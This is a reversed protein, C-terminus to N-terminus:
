NSGAAPVAKWFYKAFGSQEDEAKIRFMMRMPAGVAVADPHTDTFEALMRGGGEFEIMGYYNPPDPTYTLSDATYTLIRAPRDALPYDEQTGVAADNQNVSIESRPFQVTGTRTCRGGVLGLVAKRNRYLATLVPKQSFEARKGLELRLEGSFALFKLYNEEKVARALWGSVGVSRQHDAIAATTELLLVDAGQGFGLVLIKQGPGATELLHALM